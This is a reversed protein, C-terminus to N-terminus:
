PVLFSPSKNSIEYFPLDKKHRSEKMSVITPDNDPLMLDYDSITKQPIALKGTRIGLIGHVHRLIKIAVERTNYIGKQVEIEPSTEM